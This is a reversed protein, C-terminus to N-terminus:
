RALGTSTARSTASTRHSTTSRRSAPAAVGTRAPTRASSTSRHPLAAPARAARRAAARLVARRPLAALERLTELVRALLSRRLPRTLQTTLAAPVATPQSRIVLPAIPACAARMPAIGLVTPKHLASIALTPTTSYAPELDTRVTADDTIPEPIPEDVPEPISAVLQGDRRTLLPQSGRALAVADHRELLRAYVRSSDPALSRIALRVGARGYPSTQKTYAAVVTCSGRLVSTGNALQIAFEAVTGVPRKQTSPVFCAEPECFRGYDDVLADVTKYPTAVRITKV